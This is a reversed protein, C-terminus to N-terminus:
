TKKRSQPVPLKKMQGGPLYASRQPTPNGNGCAGTVKLFYDGKRTEFELQRQLAERTCQYARRDNRENRYQDAFWDRNDWLFSFLKRAQHKIWTVFRDFEDPCTGETNTSLDVNNRAKTNEM